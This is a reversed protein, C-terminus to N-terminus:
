MQPKRTLPVCLSPILSHQPPPSPLPSSLFLSIKPLFLSSILDFFILCAVKPSSIRWFCKRDKWQHCVFPIVVTTVEDGLVAFAFIIDAIEVPLSNWGCPQMPDDVEVVVKAEKCVRREPVREEERKMREKDLSLVSLKLLQRM